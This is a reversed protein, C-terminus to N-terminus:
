LIRLILGEGLRSAAALGARRAVAVHGVARLRNVSGAAAAENMVAEFEEISSAEIHLGEIDSESSCVKAEEDWLAKVFFTREM